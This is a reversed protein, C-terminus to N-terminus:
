GNGLVAAAMGPAWGNRSTEAPAHEVHTPRTAFGTSDSSNGLIAEVPNDDHTMHPGDATVEHRIEAPTIAADSQTKRVRPVDYGDKRAKNLLWSAMGDNVNFAAAVARPMSEGRDFAARAVRAVEIYDYKSKGPSPRKTSQKAVKAKPTAPKIAPKTAAVPAAAVEEGRLVVMAAHIRAMDADIAAREDGLEVLEEELKEIILAISM